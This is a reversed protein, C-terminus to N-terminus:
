AFRDDPTEPTPVHVPNGDTGEAVDDTHGPYGQRHTVPLRKQEEIHEQIEDDRFAM